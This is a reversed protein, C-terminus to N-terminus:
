EAALNGSAHPARYAPRNFLLTWMLWRGGTYNSSTVNEKTELVDAYILIMGRAEANGQCLNQVRGGKGKYGIGM